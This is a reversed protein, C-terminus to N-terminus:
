LSVCQKSIGSGAAVNDPRSITSSEEKNTEAHSDVNPEQMFTWIQCTMIETERSNKKQKSGLVYTSDSYSETPM